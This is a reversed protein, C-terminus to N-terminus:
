GTTETVLGTELLESIFVKLDTDAQNKEVHFNDLIGSLIEELSHEGDLYGWIYEAVSGLAFIRQMDALTGRIPVLIMEGVIQRAIIEEKKQFTSNLNIDM